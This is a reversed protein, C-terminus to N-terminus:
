LLYIARYLRPTTNVDKNGRVARSLLTGQHSWKKTLRNYQNLQNYNQTKPHEYQTRTGTYHKRERDRINIKQHIFMVYFRFYYYYYCCCCCYISGVLVSLCSHPIYPREHRSSIRSLCESGSTIRRTRVQRTFMWLTTM